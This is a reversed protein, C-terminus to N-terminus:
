PCQYSDGFPTGNPATIAVRSKPHNICLANRTSYLPTSRNTIVKTSRLVKGSADYAVVEYVGESVAVTACGASTLAVLFSLVSRM